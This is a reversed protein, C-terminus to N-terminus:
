LSELLFCFMMAMHTLLQLLFCINKRRTEKEEREEVRFTLRDPVTKLFNAFQQEQDGGASNTVM